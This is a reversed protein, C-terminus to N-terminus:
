AEELEALCARLTDIHRGYFVRLTIRYIGATIFYGIVFSASTWLFFRWGPRPLQPVAHAAKSGVILGIGLGLALAVLTLWVLSREYLRLYNETDRVTSRLQEVLSLGPDPSTGVRWRFYLLAVSLGAALLAALGLLIQIRFDAQWSFYLLVPIGVLSSVAELLMNRRMKALASHSRQRLLERIRPADLATDAPAPQTQWAQKFDDLDM